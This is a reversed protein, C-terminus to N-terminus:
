SIPIMVVTYHRKVGSTHRHVTHTNGKFVTESWYQHGRITVCSCYIVKMEKQQEKHGDKERNVRM